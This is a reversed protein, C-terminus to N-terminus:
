KQTYYNIPDCKLWNQISSVSVNHAQAAERQGMFIGKPTHIKKMKGLSINKCSQLSRKKGLHAKRIKEKVEPRNSTEKARISAALKWETTGQFARVAESIKKRQEDNRKLFRRTDCQDFIDQLNSM